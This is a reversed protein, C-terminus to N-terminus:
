RVLADRSSVWIGVAHVPMNLAKAVHVELCAGRSAEWGPLIALGQCPLMVQLDYKLYDEWTWGELVGKEAPNEIDFGVARLKAEAEFFAPFNSDPLGTMPGSIYLKM